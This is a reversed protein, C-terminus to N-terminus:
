SLSVEMKQYRLELVKGDQGALLLAIEVFGALL